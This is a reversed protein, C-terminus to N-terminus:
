SRRVVAMTGTEATTETGTEIMMATEIGQMETEIETAIDTIEMEAVGAL